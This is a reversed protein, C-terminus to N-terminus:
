HPPAPNGMTKRDPGRARLRRRGAWALALGLGALAATGPEPVVVFDITLQPAANPDERSGFRRATFPLDEDQVRLMWGFNSTPNDLWAQVDNVMDQTGEFQYTGVGYIFAGASMLSAYDVGVAGGPEAWPAAPAHAHLWTADGAAAPAGLGGPNNVPITSGEGWSRLM